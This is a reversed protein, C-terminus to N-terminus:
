GRGMGAVGIACLAAALLLLAWESMTPVAAGVAAVTINASSSNDAPTPDNANAPATVTATNGIATPAAPATAAITYTVTGNAPLTVLDQLDGVGNATCSAGASAICNWTVNTLAADFDDAVAAGTVADPGNNTVVITYSVPSGVTVIPAGATKVISLNANLPTVLAGAPYGYGESGDFGYMWAGIPASATIRHEGLSVPRQAGSYGSTGIPTFSAPPVTVGDIKVSSIASTPAVVNLYNIQTDGAGTPVVYSTLFRSTPMILMEFPDALVVNDYKGGPSYQAVLAPKTTTIH